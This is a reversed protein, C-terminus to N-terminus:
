ARVKKTFRKPRRPKVILEVKGGSAQIKEIATKSFHDARVTIAKSLEGNGLVKLLKTNGSLRGVEKLTDVNIVGSIDVVNLDGVSFRSSVIGSSARPGTRNKCTRSEEPRKGREAYEVYSCAGPESCMRSCATRTAAGRTKVQSTVWPYSM